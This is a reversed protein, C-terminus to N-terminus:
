VFDLCVGAKAGPSAGIYPDPQPALPPFGLPQWLLHPWFLVHLIFYIKTLNTAKEM